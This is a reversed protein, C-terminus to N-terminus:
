AEGKTEGSATTQACGSLEGAGSVIRPLFAAMEEPTERFDRRIWEDLLGYLGHACFTERYPTLVDDGRDPPTMIRYFSEHLAEQLGARYVLTLIRRISLNYRFFHLANELDFRDRVRISNLEAYREWLKIFKYTVVERKDSFSRFYTARGVGARAALEDATIRDIPKEELLALLADAICEKLYENSRGSM